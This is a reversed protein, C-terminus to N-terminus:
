SRNEKSNSISFYKKSLIKYTLTILMPLDIMLALHYGQVPVNRLIEQEYAPFNLNELITVPNVSLFSITTSATMLLLYILTGWWAWQKGKMMGWLMCALFLISLDLLFYGQLKFAFKGFLPFIGNFLLPVHLAMIILVILSALILTPQSFQDIWDCVPTRELYSMQMNRHRYLRILLIPLIPYVLTFSIILFPLASLPPDKSTVLMLFIIISLPLGFIMWDWLLTLTVKRSWHQLRLHGYGLPICIVAIAYYGIVQIAINGFMFSGFGFGDYYFM